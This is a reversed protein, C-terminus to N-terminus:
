LSHDSAAAIADVRVLFFSHSYAVLNSSPHAEAFTVALPLHARGEHLVTVQRHRPEGVSLRRGQPADVQTPRPALLFLLVAEHKIELAAVPAAVLLILVVGLVRHRRAGAADNRVDFVATVAHQELREDVQFDLLHGRHLRCELACNLGDILQFVVFQRCFWQGVCIVPVNQHEILRRFAPCPDQPAQYIFRIGQTRHSTLRQTDAVEVGVRALVQAARWTSTLVAFSGAVVAQQAIAILPLM